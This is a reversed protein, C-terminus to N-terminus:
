LADSGQQTIHLGSFNAALSSSIAIKDTGASTADTNFSYVTDNGGQCTVTGGNTSRFYFTDNGTGGALKLNDAYAYVEHAGTTHTYERMTLNVSADATATRIDGTGDQSYYDVVRSGDTEVLTHNLIAGASSYNSIEKS